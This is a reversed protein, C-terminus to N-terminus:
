TDKEAKARSAVFARVSREIDEETTAFSCVSIRIAPGGNWATGGCWCEGSAQLHRLTGETMQSTACRVLVQNFVVDNPITFGESALRRAFLGAMDCLNEVLAAAGSKGLSLLTAWLDVAHARRSMDPTFMMCDRQASFVFYAGAARMASALADRNRCFVIGNDYPANLTKHADASWSDALAVGDVLRALRPSAAAWLGFAGDVHVWAGAEHAASIIAAFPDFAGSNVNGAQLILLTRSDLPPLRAPDMRGQADVPVREVRDRGLGLLGLAKFVSAHAQEGIVVRIQPAGFLGRAGCDWGARKLLEDRGAALGCLTAVSTGGVLGAATGSPLGLLSVLWKECATELASSVPSMVHLAANQDWADSLWRAAVAAPLSGGNVFGFYRGGGYPVTAPSGLRHLLDVIQRPDMPGEPLSAPLSELGQLAEADPVARMARVGDLYQTAHEHARDLIGRDRAQRRLANLISGSDM